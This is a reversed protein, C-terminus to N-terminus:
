VHPTVFPDTILRIIEGRKFCADENDLRLTATVKIGEVDRGSVRQDKVEKIVAAEGDGTNITIVQTWAARGGHGRLDTEITRLPHLISPKKKKIKNNNQPDFDINPDTM